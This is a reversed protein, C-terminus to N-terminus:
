NGGSNNAWNVIEHYGPPSLKILSLSILLMKFYIWVLSYLALEIQRQLSLSLCLTISILFFSIFPYCFPALLILFAISSNIFFALTTPLIIYIVHPVFNLKKKKLMLIFFFELNLLHLIYLMSNELGWTILLLMWM